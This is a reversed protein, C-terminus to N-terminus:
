TLSDVAAMIEEKAFGVQKTAANPCVAACAGCGQCLVEIVGAIGKEADIKRAEYPCVGVCLGCGACIRENIQAVRGKAQVTDQALLAAARGAAARAQSIAEGAFKPSHALGCLYIGDTAFDVPRLKIHAELFFGDQDLPVKLAKALQENQAGPVIGTSLVLLDVSLSLKQGLVPDFAEIQLPDDPAEGATVKPKNDPEYRVFIVGEQRAKQYYEERFGYTRIDRYFVIVNTQPHMQKIKLANKIAQSCCVRSCYMRDEERSGVCQIMAVTQAATVDAIGSEDSLKAELEKQTIVRDSQGRLYEDTENETAGSAVIVAGHEIVMEKDQGNTEVLTTKYNGMYGTLEKVRTSLHIHIKESAKVREITSNLLELPDDGSLTFHLKRLNGGLEKDTEVLYVEFGQEALSLAATMGAIGGGVVLAESRVSFSSQQVSRLLGAKSVAMAVLDKSKQTARAKDAMHVWSCHERISIFELLLPNLGVERITDQFLPEHTRPTCSAIVVRNLRHQEIIEKIRQQNDQSCTYLSHECYTVDPLDKAFEVVEEVNV